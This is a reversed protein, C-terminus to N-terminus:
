FLCSSRQKVIGWACLDFLGQCPSKNSLLWRLHLLWLTNRPPLHLHPSKQPLQPILNYANEYQIIYISHLGSVYHTWYIYCLNFADLIMFYYLICYMHTTESSFAVHRKLCSSSRPLSLHFSFIAPQLDYFFSQIAFRLLKHFNIKRSLKLISSKRNSFM